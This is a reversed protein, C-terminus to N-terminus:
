ILHFLRIPFDFFPYLSVPYVDWYEDIMMKVISTIKPAHRLMELTEIKPRLLIQGFVIALNNTNMMNKESLAAM